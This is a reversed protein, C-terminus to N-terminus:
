QLESVLDVAADESVKLQIVKYTAAGDNSIFRDQQTEEYGIAGAVNPDALLPALAADVQALFAPSKADTGAPGTFIAVLVAGGSGFETDLRAQVQSAEADRVIWGGSSLHSSISSAFFGMALTIVLTIVAVARRHRYVFRGWAAFM